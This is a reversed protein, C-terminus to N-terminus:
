EYVPVEDESGIGSHELDGIGVDIRVLEGQGSQDVESVQPLGSVVEPAVNTPYKSVM